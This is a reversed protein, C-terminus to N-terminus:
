YYSLSYVEPKHATTEGKPTLITSMQTPCGAADLEYSYTTKGQQYNHSSGEYITEEVLNVPMKGLGITWLFSDPFSTTLFLYVSFQNNTLNPKTSYKYSVTGLQPSEAKVLNGNEWSFKVTTGDSSSAESLRNDKDYKYDITADTKVCQTIRGNETVFTALKEGEATFSIKNGEYTFSYDGLSAIRNDTNYTYGLTFDEGISLAKIKKSATGPEKENEEKKCSAFTTAM